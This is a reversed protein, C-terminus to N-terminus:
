VIMRCLPCKSSSNKIKIYCSVCNMHTCEYPVCLKVELCVPCECKEGYKREKNKLICLERDEMVKVGIKDGIYRYLLGSGLPITFGRQL